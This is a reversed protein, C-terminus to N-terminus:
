KFLISNGFTAACFRVSFIYFAFHPRSWCLDHNQSNLMVRRTWYITSLIFLAGDTVITVLNILLKIDRQSSLHIRPLSRKM